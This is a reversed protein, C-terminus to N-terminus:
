VDSVGRDDPLPGLLREMIDNLTALGVTKGGKDQIVAIHNKTKLFWSLLKFIPTEDSIFSVNRIIGKITADREVFLMDKFYIIGIIRDGRKSIVPMRSFRHNLFISSAQQFTADAHISIVNNKKVCIDRINMERLALYNEVLEVEDRNDKYNNRIYELMDKLEPYELRVSATDQKKDVIRTVTRSLPSIIFVFINTFPLIKVFFHPKYVAIIKPTIEGIILLIITVAGISMIRSGLYTGFTFNFLSVFYINVFTNLFLLAILLSTKNRGMSKLVGSYYRREKIFKRADTESLSFYATETGSFIFSFMLLSVLILISIM